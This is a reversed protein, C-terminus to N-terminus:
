EGQGSTQESGAIQAQHTSLQALPEILMQLQQSAGIVAGSLDTTSGAVATAAATLGLGVVIVKSSSAFPLLLDIRNIIQPADIPVWIM